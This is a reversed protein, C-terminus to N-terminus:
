RFMNGADVRGDRRWTIRESMLRSIPRSISTITVSDPSQSGHWPNWRRPRVVAKAALNLTALVGWPIFTTGRSSAFPHRLTVCFWSFNPQVGLSGKWCVGCGRYCVLNPVPLAIDFDIQGAAHDATGSPTGSGPPSWRLRDWPSCYSRGLAPWARRAAM